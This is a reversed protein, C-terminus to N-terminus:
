LRMDRVMRILHLTLTQRSANASSAQNCSSGPAVTVSPEEDLSGTLLIELTKHRSKIHALDIIAQIADLPCRFGIRKPVFRM